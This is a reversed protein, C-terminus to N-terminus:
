QTAEMWAISVSLGRRHLQKAAKEYDVESGTEGLLVVARVAPPLDISGLTSKSLTAIGDLDASQVASLVTEVGEGIVVPEEGSLTGIVVGAGRTPGLSARAIQVDAKGSGDNKLATRQIAVLAMSRPDTVAVIMAPQKGSPMPCCPHFRLCRPVICISRSKLYAEAITGRAPMACRWIPSHRDPPRQLPMAAEPSARLNSRHGRHTPTSTSYYAGGAAECHHCRWRVGEGDILVSLSNKQQGARSRLHSCAPCTTYHQGNGYSALRFGNDFAIEHPAKM